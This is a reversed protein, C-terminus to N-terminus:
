VHVFKGVEAVSWASNRFNFCDKVISVIEWIMWSATLDLVSSDRQISSMIVAIFFCINVYEISVKLSFSCVGEKGAFIYPRENNRSTWCKAWCFVTIMPSAVVCCSPLEKLAWYRVDKVAVEIPKSHDTLVDATKSSVGSFLKTCSPVLQSSKIGKRSAM